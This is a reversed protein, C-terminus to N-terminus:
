WRFSVASAFGKATPAAGWSFELRRQSHAKDSFNNGKGNEVLGWILLVVGAGFVGLGIAAEVEEESTAGFFDARNIAHATIGAGVGMLVAGAIAKKKKNAAQIDFATSLLGLVCAAVMLKSIKIKYHAISDDPNM